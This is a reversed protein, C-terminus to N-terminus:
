DSSFKRCTTSVGCFDFNVVSGKAGGGAAGSTGSSSSSSGVPFGCSLTELQFSGHRAVRLSQESRKPVIFGCCYGSEEMQDWM